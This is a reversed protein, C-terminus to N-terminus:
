TASVKDWTMGSVERLLRRLLYSLHMDGRADHDSENGDDLPPMESDAKSETEFDFLPMSEVQVAKVLINTSDDQAAEQHLEQRKFLPVTLDGDVM